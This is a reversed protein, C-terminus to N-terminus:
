LARYNTPTLSMPARWVDRVLIEKTRDDKGGKKMLLKFAMGSAEVNEEDDDEIPAAEVSPPVLPSTPAKPVVKKGQAEFMLQMYEREFEDDMDGVDQDRSM